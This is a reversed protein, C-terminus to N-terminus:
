PRSCSRGACRDARSRNNSTRGRGSSRLRGAVRRVELRDGVTIDRHSREMEIEGVLRREAAGAPCEVGSAAQARARALGVLTVSRRLLGSGSRPGSRSARRAPGRGAPRRSRRGSARARRAEAVIIVTLDAEEVHDIERHDADGGGAIAVDDRHGVMRAHEVRQHHRRDPDEEHQDEDAGGVGENEAPCPVFPLHRLTCRVKLSWITTAPKPVLPESATSSSIARPALADSMTTMSQSASASSRASCSPQATRWASAVRSLVSAPRGYRGRWPAPRRPRAAVVGRDQDRQGRAM